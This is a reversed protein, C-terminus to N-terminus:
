SAHCLGGGASAQDQRCPVRAFWVTALMEKVHQRAQAVGPAAICADMAVLNTSTPAKARDIVAQEQWAGGLQACTDTAVGSLVRARHGGIRTWRGPVFSLTRGPVGEAVWTILVGGPSLRSLPSGCSVRTVSANRTVTCPAHLRGTSLFALLYTFSSTERYQYPRWRRPHYFSLRAMPFSAMVPNPIGLSSGGCISTDYPVRPSSTYITWHQGAQPQIGDESIITSSDGARAVATAVTVIKPGHGKLYRTVRVRAPSVLVRHGGLDATPGPLMTGTFVMRAAFYESSTAAACSGASTGTGSGESSVHASSSGESSLHPASTCAVALTAIPGALLAAWAATLRPAAARRDSEGHSRM